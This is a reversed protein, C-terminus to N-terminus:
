KETDADGDVPADDFPNEVLANSHTASLHALQSQDAIPSFVSQQDM